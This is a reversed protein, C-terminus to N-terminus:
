NNIIFKFSRSKGDTYVRLLYLTPSSAKPTPITCGGDPITFKTNNYVQGSANIWQAYCEIDTKGKWDANVFVVDGYYSYTATITLGTSDPAFYHKEASADFKKACACTYVEDAKGKNVWFCVYYTDNINGGYPIDYFNLNASVQGEIATSDSTRYWQFNSLEKGTFYSAQLGLVDDYRQIIVDKDYNLQFHMTTDAGGCDSKIILNIGYLTEPQASEPITIQFYGPLIVLKDDKFGAAKAISDFEITVNNGKLDVHGENTYYIKGIYEKGDEPCPVDVRDISFQYRGITVTIPISDVASQGVCVNSSNRYILVYAPYSGSNAYYHLVSDKNTLDSQGDGFYWEIKEYEYDPHCAFKITDEGCLTNESDPYFIKGNITIYQTLPKTAGGASYGYSENETFGYVHAIFQGDTSKLTHSRADNGLYLQAYHYMSSGSVPKFYSSIDDDDLTMSAPKDTVVNTYHYTTRSTGTGEKGLSQYTAFTVQDIQQEIPNIWLMAPDGNKNSADQYVQSTIFLHAACPCSTTLVCSSDKAYSGKAGITFEWFHKANTAFDFTYVSDGNIYVTTEDNLALIRIIDAARNKSATLVFTNGWYKTPMAQSFIHDRQRVEYPINTHPCGQFVAIKKGDRAKVYTGSLDGSTKDKKGTWVYYVQGKKLMPTHLTDGVKYNLLASDEPTLYYGHAAKDFVENYRKTMETPCYDVITSDEAAIIAFHSGQSKSKDDAKNEHDSPTYTQVIYEDLLSPTPLVNTADFTAYKYNTAFLSIDESAEIHLACTDVTESYVSYCVKGTNKMDSRVTSAIPSNGRYVEVLKMVNATILMTDSYSTYPNSIVVQCNKRASISLQLILANSGQDAQMFTVWFDKGETSQGEVVTSQAKAGMFPLWILYCLLVNFLQKKM